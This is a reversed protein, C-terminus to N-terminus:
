SVAYLFQYMDMYYLPTCHLTFVMIVTDIPVAGIIVALKTMQDFTEFQMIIIIITFLYQALLLIIYVLLIIIYGIRHRFWYRHEDSVVEDILYFKGYSFYELWSINNNNTMIAYM